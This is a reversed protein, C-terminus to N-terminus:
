CNGRWRRPARSWIHLKHVHGTLGAEVTRIDPTTDVALTVDNLGLSATDGEEIVILVAPNVNIEGISSPQVRGPRWALRRGGLEIVVVPVSGESVDGGFGAKGTGAPLG